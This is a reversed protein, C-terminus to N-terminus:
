STDAHVTVQKHLAEQPQGWWVESLAPSFLESTPQPPPLPELSAVDPFGAFQVGDVSLYALKSMPTPPAPTAVVNM